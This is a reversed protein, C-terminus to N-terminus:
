RKKEVRIAALIPSPREAGMRMVMSMAMVVIAAWIWGIM